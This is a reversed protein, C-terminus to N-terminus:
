KEGAEELFENIKSEDRKYIKHRRIKLTGTYTGDDVSFRSIVLFDKPKQFSNLHSTLRKVESKLLTNLEVEHIKDYEESITLCAYLNKLGDGIIMVDDIIESKKLEDEIPEPHINEGSKLVIMNSKRGSIFLKEDKYYGVDGTYLWGDKIAKGSADSHNWYGKMVCSGKLLLEGKLNKGINGDEDLFTIDGGNEKLLWDLLSGSSGLYYDSVNDVSVVPSSESLGYGQMVPLGIYTFYRQLAIDIGAGGSIFERFNSGFSAKIKTLLKEELMNYIANHEEKGVYNAKDGKVLPAIELLKKYGLIAEEGAANIQKEINAKILELIRPVALIISPQFNQIDRIFTRQNKTIGISGGSVLIGIVEVALAFSHWYPLMSYMCDNSTLEKIKAVSKGNEVLNEHTLMVGKPNGTSGSTYILTSLDEKNIDAGISERENKVLEELEDVLIIKGQPYIKKIIEELKPITLIIKPTSDELIFKIETEKGNENIPVAIGGLVWVSYFAKIQDISKPIIIGVRDGKECGIKEIYTSWKLSESITEEYTYNKTETKIFINNKYEEKKGLIYDKLTRM